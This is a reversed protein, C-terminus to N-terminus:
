LIGYPFVQTAQSEHIWGETNEVSVRLWSGSKEILLADGGPNVKKLVSGSSETPLTRIEVSKGTLILADPSYASEGQGLAALLAIVTMFLVTAAVGWRWFNGSGGRMAFLLCLLFFGFAAAALYQDPRAVSDRLAALQRTFGMDNESSSLQLKEETLRLNAATEADGPALLLARTFWVRAEPFNGLQFETCGLNYLLEPSLQDHRLERHFAEAASRYNGSNYASIGAVASLSIGLVCCVVAVKKLFKLLKSRLEPSVTDQNGIGPAFGSSAIGTFFRKLEPDDIRDAIDQATAGSPLGYFEAIESFGYEAFVAAPDRESKLERCIESIRNRLERRHALRQPSFNKRYRRWLWDIVLVLLGGAIWMIIMGSNNKILPLKVATSGGKLYHLGSFPVAAPTKSETEVAAPVAPVAPTQVQNAKGPTVAMALAFDSIQWRDSVPDFCGLKFNIKKEGPALPIIAYRLTIRDDKRLLEPPYVRFGPFELAPKKLMSDDMASGEPAAATIEVEAVEGSRCTSTNLRASLKWKGSLGLDIVGDPLPPLPVVKFGASDKVTITVNEPRGYRSGMGFFSDFIDDNFGDRSSQRLERMTLTVAAEPFFEGSIVPRLAIVFPYVMYEKGDVEASYRNLQRVPNGSRPDNVKVANGDNAINFNSIELLQRNEPIFLELKMQLTEGSRLPRDPMTILRGFPKIETTKEPKRSGPPLIELVSPASVLEGNGTRVKIPPIELKGAEVTILQRVFRYTIRPQGSNSFSMQSGDSRMNYNWRAKGSLEPLIVEAGGRSTSDATITVSVAEGAEPRSPRFSIKVPNGAASLVSAATLLLLLVSFTKKMMITM